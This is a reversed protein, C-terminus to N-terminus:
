LDTSEDIKRSIGCGNEDSGDQCENRGNCRATQVVCEGSTCQLQNEGCPAITASGLVRIFQKKFSKELAKRVFKRLLKKM